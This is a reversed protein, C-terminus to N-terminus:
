RWSLGYIPFERSSAKEMVLTKANKGDPDCVVIRSIGEKEVREAFIEWAKDSIVYAIKKGDPSWCFEWLRDSETVGQVPTVRGSALDIVKLTPYQSPNDKPGWDLHLARTKDPSLRGRVVWNSGDTVPLPHQGQRDVLWLRGAPNRRDNRIEATLFQKGDQSWDELRHNEPLTLPTVKKTKVNVIGHIIDPVQNPRFVRANFAIETGDPSWFYSDCEVSLSEGPDDRDLKRVYLWQKVLGNPDTPDVLERVMFALQKGDPSLVPAGFTSRGPVPNLKHENRGDPDIRSLVGKHNFVLWNTDQVVPKPALRKAATRPPDAPASARINARPISQGPPDEAAVLWGCVFLAAVGGFLAPITKVTHVLMLHLGQNALADIDPSIAAGSRAIATTRALLRSPIAVTGLTVLVTSLAVGRRRLRGALVERGRALRTYVTGVPLGLRRATAAQPEGGLDCIVIITRYKEPLRVLEEDLIGQFEASYREPEAGGVEPLPHTPAERARQRAATVRAERATRVAVGHLWNGLQEPRAIDAARRALVLFTAQFADEADQSHATIRRCVALVMPGHRRVLETFAANDRSAVFAAVLAGDTPQTAVPRCVRSLTASLTTPPM